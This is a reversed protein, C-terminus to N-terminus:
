SEVRFILTPLIQVSITLLNIIIKLLKFKLELFCDYLLSPNILLLMKSTFRVFYSPNIDGTFCEFYIKLM